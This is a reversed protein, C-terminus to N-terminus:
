SVPEEQRAKKPLKVVFYVAILAFILAENSEKVEVISHNMGPSAAFAALRSLLYSMAMMGGLWLPVIPVNIKKLWVSLRGSVKSLVPIVLCFVLWFVQFLRAVTIWEALGTKKEGQANAGHFLELNHLNLEKQLNIDAIVKPTEVHLIRQGWSIEEGCGFLFVVALLFFFINRKTKLFRFDNGQADKLFSLFFIISAALFFVATLSEFFGDERALSRLTDEKFLFFIGYTLFIYLLTALKHKM